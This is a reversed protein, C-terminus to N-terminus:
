STSCGNCMTEQSLVVRPRRLGCIKWALLCGSMDPKVSLCAVLHQQTKAGYEVAGTIPESVPVHDLQVIM